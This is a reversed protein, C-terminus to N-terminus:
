LVAIPMVVVVMHVLKPTYHRQRILVTSFRRIIKVRAIPISPPPRTVRNRISISIPKGALLKIILSPKIVQSSPIIIRPHSTQRMGELFLM